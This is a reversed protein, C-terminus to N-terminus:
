AIGNVNKCLSIEVDEDSVNPDNLFLISFLLKIAGRSKLDCLASAMALVFLVAPM